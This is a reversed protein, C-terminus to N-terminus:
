VIGFPVHEGTIVNKPLHTINGVVFTNWRLKDFDYNECSISCNPLQLSPIDNPKFQEHNVHYSILTSFFLSHGFIILINGNQQEKLNTKLLDNFKIVQEIFIEKTDHIVMGVNKQEDSITKKPSTYEQLGVITKPNIKINEVCCLEMFYFATRKARQFPSIWVDVTTINMEKLKNAICIATNLSQEIGKKTIEPDNHSNLMTKQDETLNKDKNDHLIVNSESEAHRVYVVLNDM